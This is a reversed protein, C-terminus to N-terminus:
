PTGKPLPAHNEAYGCVRCTYDYSLEKIREHRDAESVRLARVSPVLLAESTCNPCRIARTSPRM